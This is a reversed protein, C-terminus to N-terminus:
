SSIIEIQTDDSGATKNEESHKIEKPYFSGMRIEGQQM